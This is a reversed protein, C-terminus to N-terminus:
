IGILFKSLWSWSSRKSNESERLSKLRKVEELGKRVEPNDEYDLGKEGFDKREQITLEKKGEVATRFITKSFTRRVGRSFQKFSNLTDFYEDSYVKKLYPIRKFAEDAMMGFGEIATTLDALQHAAGDPLDKLEKFAEMHVKQIQQYKEGLMKIDDRVRQIRELGESIGGVKESFDDLTKKFDGLKKLVRKRGDPSLLPSKEVQEIVDSVNGSIKELTDKYEDIAEKESDLLNKREKKEVKEPEKKGASKLKPAPKESVPRKVQIPPKNKASNLASVLIAGGSVGAGALGIVLGAVATPTPLGQPTGPLKIVPPIGSSPPPQVNSEEPAIVSTEGHAPIILVKSHGSHDLCSYQLELRTEKGDRVM